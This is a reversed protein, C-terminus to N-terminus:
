PSTVSAEYGVGRGGAGIKEITRYHSVVKDKTLVVHTQTNDDDRSM